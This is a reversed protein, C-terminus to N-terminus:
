FGRKLLSVVRKAFSEKTAYSRYIDGEETYFCISFTNTNINFITYWGKEDTGASLSIRGKENMQALVQNVTDM